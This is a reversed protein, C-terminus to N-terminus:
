LEYNELHIIYSENKLDVMNEHFFFDTEILFAIVKGYYGKLHKLQLLWQMSQMHQGM